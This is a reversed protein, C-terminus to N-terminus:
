EVNTVETIGYKIFQQMRNEGEAAPGHQQMDAFRNILAQKMWAPDRKWVPGIHKIWLEIEKETVQVGRAFIQATQVLIKALPEDIIEKPHSWHAKGLCDTYFGIQKLHDLVYPHDSNNDFLPRLDDLKRAGSAVLQPLIWAVNKKVHSRYDKWAALVDEEVAAVSLSRLISVKGAEEISLIAISVATPIRKADLLFAADEALRKANDSAANIGAAIQAANLRDRYLDLKKNM